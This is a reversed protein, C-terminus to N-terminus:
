WFLMFKRAFFRGYQIKRYNKQLFGSAALHSGFEVLRRNVILVSSSEALHSRFEALHTSSEV